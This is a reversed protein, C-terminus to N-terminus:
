LIFLFVFINMPFLSTQWQFSNDATFRIVVSRRERWREREREREQETELEKRRECLWLLGLSLTHSLSLPILAVWMMILTSYKALLFYKGGGTQINSGAIWLTLCVKDRVGDNDFHKRM